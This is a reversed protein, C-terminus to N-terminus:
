SLGLYALTPKARDGDSLHYAHACNFGMSELMLVEDLGLKACQYPPSVGIVGRNAHHQMSTGPKFTSGMYLKVGGVYVNGEPLRCEQIAKSGDKLHMHDDMLTLTCYPGYGM